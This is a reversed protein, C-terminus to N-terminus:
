KNPTPMAAQLALPAHDGGDIQEDNDSPTGARCNIIVLLRQVGDKGDAQIFAGQGLSRDRSPHAGVLLYQNQGLTVDWSLEAYKRCSKETRIEWSRHDPAAQFPLRPAGHEVRPTFTLRTGDKVLRASVDLCYRANELMIEEQTKGNMMFYSTRPLV